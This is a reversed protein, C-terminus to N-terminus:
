LFTHERSPYSMRFSITAIIFFKKVHACTSLANGIGTSANIGTNAILFLSFLFLFNMGSLQQSVMLFSVVVVPRRLEHSTLLETISVATSRPAGLHDDSEHQSAEGTDDLLPSEVSASLELCSNLPHAYM